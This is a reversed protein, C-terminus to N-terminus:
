YFEVYVVVDPRTAPQFLQGCGCSNNCLGHHHCHSLIRRSACAKEPSQDPRELTNQSPRYNSPYQNASHQDMNPGLASSSLADTVVDM